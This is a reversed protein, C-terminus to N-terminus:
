KARSMSYPFSSEDTGRTRDPEPSMRFRLRGGNQIDSHMLYNRTMRKGNLVAERIFVNGPGNGEAEIVFDRGGEPKLTVEDFLPSGIVYECTGPAM